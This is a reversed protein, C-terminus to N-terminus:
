RPAVVIWAPVSLSRAVPPEESTILAPATVKLASETVWVAPPVRSNLPKRLVVVVSATPARVGVVPMPLTLTTELPPDVVSVKADSPVRPELVPRLKVLGLEPAILKVAATVPLGLPMMPPKAVTPPVLKAKVTAAPPATM